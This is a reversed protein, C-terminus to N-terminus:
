LLPQLLLPLIAYEEFILVVIHLMKLLCIFGKFHDLISSVLCLISWIDLHSFLSCFLILLFQFDQYYPKLHIVTFILLRYPTTTFSNAKHFVPQSNSGPSRWDKPYSKLHLDWRRRNLQQLSTFSCDSATFIKFQSVLFIAAILKLHAM